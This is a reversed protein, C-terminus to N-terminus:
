DREFSSYVGRGPEKIAFVEGAYDSEMCAEEYYWRSVLTFSGDDSDRVVTKRFEQGPNSLAWKEARKLFYNITETKM